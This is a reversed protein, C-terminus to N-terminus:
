RLITKGAFAVTKRGTNISYSNHEEVLAAADQTAQEYHVALAEHDTKAKASQVATTM